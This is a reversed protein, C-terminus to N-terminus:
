AQQAGVRGSRGGSARTQRSGVLRCGDTGLRNTSHPVPGRGIATGRSYSCRAQTRVSRCRLAPRRIGQPGRECRWWPAVAEGNPPSAGKVGDCEIKTASWVATVVIVEGAAPALSLTCSDSGPCVGGAPKGGGVLARPNKVEIPLPLPQSLEMRVPPMNERMEAQRQRREEQMEARRTARAEPDMNRWEEQRARRTAQADPDALPQAQSGFSAFLLTLVILLTWTSWQM